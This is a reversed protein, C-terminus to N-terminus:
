DHSHIKVSCKCGGTQLASNQVETMQLFAQTSLENRTESLGVDGENGTVFAVAPPNQSEMIFLMKPSPRPTESDRSSSRPTRSRMGTMSKIYETALTVPKAKGILTVEHLDSTDFVIEKKYASQVQWSVFCIMYSVTRNLSM